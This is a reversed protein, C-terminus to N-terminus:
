KTASQCYFTKTEPCIEGVTTSVFCSATSHNRGTFGESVRSVSVARTGGESLQVCSAEEWLLATWPGADNPQLGEVM